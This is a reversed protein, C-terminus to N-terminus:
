PAPVPAGRGTRPPGAAPGPEPTARATPSAAGTGAGAEEQPLQTWVRAQLGQPGLAGGAGTPPAAGWVSSAGWSKAGRLCLRGPQRAAQRHSRGERLPLLSVEIQGDPFRSLRTGEVARRCQTVAQVRLGLGSGQGPLPGQARPVCGSGFGPSGLARPWGVGHCTGFAVPVLLRPSGAACSHGCICVSGFGHRAEGPRPRCLLGYSRGPWARWPTLVGPVSRSGLDPRWTPMVECGPGQCCCPWGKASAGGGPLHERASVSSRAACAQPSHM